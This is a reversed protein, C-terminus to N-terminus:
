CTRLSTVSIVAIFCATITFLLSTGQYRTFTLVTTFRTPFTVCTFLTYCITHLLNITNKISLFYNLCCAFLYCSILLKLIDEFFNKIQHHSWLNIVYWHLILFLISYTSIYLFLTTFLLCNALRSINKAGCEHRKWEIV